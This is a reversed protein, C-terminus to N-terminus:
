RLAFWLTEDSSSNSNNVESTATLMLKSADNTAIVFCLNGTETQGSNVTAADTLDPSPATCEATLDAHKLTEALLRGM